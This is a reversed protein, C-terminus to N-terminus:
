QDTGNAGPEAPEEWLHTNLERVARDTMMLNIAAIAALPSLGAIIVPAIFNKSSGLLLGTVIPACIGALQAVTNQYGIVRGILRGPCIVQTLAWYNGAAIGLGTLSVLLVALVYSSSGGALVLMVSSACLCGATVFLKRVLLARGSRKIWYDALRGCVVTMIGMGALPAAMYSGMKLFSFSHAMLLYSPLWTICFYWFYSYFFAGITLGWTLPSRIVARWPFPPQPGASAATRPPAGSPAAMLWPVVWICSVLGTLVFLPRWGFSNLLAAGLMAGIAPGAMMGAVYVGTPFGQEEERFHRKIFSLSAAPAIAEGLGLLVRLAFIEGFTRALGVGASALSWVLFAVAYTWKMGFRDVLWGAPMQLLAYSWFFASLLGGVGAPSLNLDRMMPVAAISLNGRDIYNILMGLFLLLVVLGRRTGPAAAPSVPQAAAPM